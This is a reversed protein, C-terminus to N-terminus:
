NNLLTRLKQAYDRIKIYQIDQEAGGLLNKGPHIASLLHKIIIIIIYPTLTTVMKWLVPGITFFVTLLQTSCSREPVFGHQVDNLQHNSEMHEMIANRLVRELMKCPISTLSLPRYNGLIHRKGKKFMPTINGDKWDQPLQGEILSRCFITNLPEILQDTLEVLVRPHLGDPGPSQSTKLKGFLQKVDESTINLHTLESSCPRKEFAPLRKQDEQTFVSTFFTNLVEAKAASDTAM